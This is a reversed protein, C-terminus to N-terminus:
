ISKILILAENFGICNGYLPGSLVRAFDFLIRAQENRDRTFDCIYKWQRAYAKSEQDVRFASDRLYKGWWLAADHDNHNQQKGHVAEHAVLHEPILLGFPNYITEGYTFITKPTIQFTACISEFNPPNAIKIHM